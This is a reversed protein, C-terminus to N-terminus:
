CANEENYEHFRHVFNNSELYACGKAIEFSIEVKEQDNLDNTNKLYTNLDGLNMYEM